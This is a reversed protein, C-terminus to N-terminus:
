KEVQTLVEKILLQTRSDDQYRPDIRVKKINENVTSILESEVPSGAHFSDASDFPITGGKAASKGNGMGADSCSAEAKSGLVGASVENKGGVESTVQGEKKERSTELGGASSPVAEKEGGKGVSGGM